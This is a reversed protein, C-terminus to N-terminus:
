AAIPTPKGAAAALAQLVGVPSEHRWEADFRAGPAFLILRELWDRDEEAELPVAGRLAIGMRALVEASMGHVRGSMPVDATRRFVDILFSALREPDCGTICPGTPPVFNAFGSGPCEIWCDPHGPASHKAM